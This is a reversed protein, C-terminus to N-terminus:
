VGKKQKHLFGKVTSMLYDFSDIHFIKSGVVYAIIGVPVQILLTLIDNLGIFQVCYVIVGMGLSMAIQPLMDKLQSLYSYNLLKRNPYSNIIQSVVSTFLLSYAMTMVGFWMTTLLVTLGM